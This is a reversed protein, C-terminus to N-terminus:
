RDAFHTPECRANELDGCFREIATMRGCVSVLNMRSCYRHWQITPGPVIVIVGVQRRVRHQTTLTVGTAPVGARLQVERLRNRIAQTSMSGGTGPPLWSRINCATSYSDQFTLQHIQRDTCVM